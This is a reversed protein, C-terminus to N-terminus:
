FNRSYPTILRLDAGKDHERRVLVCESVYEASWVESSDVPQEQIAQVTLCICTLLLGKHPTHGPKLQVKWFGHAPPDPIVLCEFLDAALLNPVTPQLLGNVGVYVGM